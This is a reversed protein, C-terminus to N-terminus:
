FEIYIKELKLIFHEKWCIIHYISTCLFLVSIDSFPAAPDVPWIPFSPLSIKSSSILQTKSSWHGEELCVASFTTSFLAYLCCLWSVAASLIVTCPVNLFCHTTLPHSFLPHVSFPRITQYPKSIWIYIYWASFKETPLSSVKSSSKVKFLPSHWM